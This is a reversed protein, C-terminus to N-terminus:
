RTHMFTEFNLRQLRRNVLPLAVMTAILMGAAFGYGYYYPGLLISVYSCGANAVLMVATILVTERLDDLYFLINLAAMVLLQLMVGVSIIALQGSYLVSINLAPLITRAFAILVLLALGQTGLIDRIGHRASLIMERRQQEIAALTGGSRV